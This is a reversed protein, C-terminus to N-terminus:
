LVHAPSRRWEKQQVKQPRAVRAAEEVVQLKKGGKWLPCERCKHGEEGCKFCVVRKVEQRRITEERVSCQMVRSSLVEFKNQPTVGREEEKGKKDRCNRVLHGFGKCYQCMRGRRRKLEARLKALAHKQNLLNSMLSNYQELFM